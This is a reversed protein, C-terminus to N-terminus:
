NEPICESLSTYMTDDLASSYECAYLITRQVHCINIYNKTLLCLYVCVYVCVCVCVCM